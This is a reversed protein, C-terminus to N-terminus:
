GEKRRGERGEEGGVWVVVGALGLLLGYQVAPSFTGEGGLTVLDFPNGFFFRALLPQLLLHSAAPLLSILPLSSSRLTQVLQFFAALRALGCAAMGVEMVWFGPETFFGYHRYRRVSALESSFVLPPLLFLATLSLHPILIATLPPPSIWAEGGAAGSVERGGLLVLGGAAAALDTGGRTGPLILALFLPILRTFSRFPPDCLTSLRLDLLSSLACLLPPLLTQRRRHLSARLPTLPRRSVLRLVPLSLLLLLLALVLHLVTATLPHPFRYESQAGIWTELLGSTPALVLYVLSSRLFRNKVLSALPAPRTQSLRHRLM